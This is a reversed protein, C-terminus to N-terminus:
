RGYRVFAFRGMGAGVSQRSRDELATISKQAASDPLREPGCESRSSSTSPNPRAAYARRASGSMALQRKLRRNEAELRSVHELGAPTVGELRQKWRYFTRVSVHATECITEVPIGRRAEDLLVLIEDDSLHPRRM